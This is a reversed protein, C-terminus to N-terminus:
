SIKKDPIKDYCLCNLGYLKSVFHVCQGMQRQKNSDM